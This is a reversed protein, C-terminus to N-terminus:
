LFLNNLSFSCSLLSSCYRGVERVQDV